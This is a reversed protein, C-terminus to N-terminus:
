NLNLFEEPIEIEMIRAKTDIDKVFKDHMPFCFEKGDKSVYILQQATQSNIYIIEGLDGINIDTVSYGILTKETIENEDTEPIWDKPLYLNQDLHLPIKELLQWM